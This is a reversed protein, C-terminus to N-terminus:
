AGVIDYRSTRDDAGSSRRLGVCDPAVHAHPLDRRRGAPFGSSSTWSSPRVSSSLSTVSVPGDRAAHRGAATPLGGLGARLAPDAAGLVLMTPTRAGRRATGPLRVEAAADLCRTSTARPPRQRRGRGRALRRTPTPCPSGLDRRFLAAMATADQAAGRTQPLGRVGARGAGRHDPRPVPWVLVLSDLRARVLSRWGCAPSGAWATHSTPRLPGPGLADAVALVDDPGV